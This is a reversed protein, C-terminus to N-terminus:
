PLYSNISILLSFGMLAVLSFKFLKRSWALDNVANMGQLAIAFWVAGLVVMVAAYVYGTFGFVSLGLASCTFATIFILIQWKTAARGKSIPLVPLKAAKYDKIRHLAIAYFHPMQWFVLVMFLLWAELGLQNSVACFGVVPPIAGSISGVVTGLATRRKFYAYPGVYAIFGITAIFATLPNTFVLLIFFGLLGLSTAYILANRVSIVGSAIGRNKTREMKSDIHRDTFNNFVCASAMVLCIGSMMALFLKWNFHGNSALFFGASATIANGYIIGPKTLRYYDKIL